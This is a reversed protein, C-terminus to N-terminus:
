FDGKLRKVREAFTVSRDFAVLRKSYAKADFGDINNIKNFIGVIAKFM